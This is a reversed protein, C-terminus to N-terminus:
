VPVTHGYSCGRDRGLPCRYAGIARSWVSGVRPLVKGMGTPGRRGLDFRSLQATEIKLAPTWTGRLSGDLHMAPLRRIADDFRLDPVQARRPGLPRTGSASSPGHCSLRPNLDDRDTDVVGVDALLARDEGPQFRAALGRHQPAAAPGAAGHPGTATSPSRAATGTSSGGRSTWGWAPARASAGQDHLVARVRAGAVEHPMGPGTDGIEVVVADSTPAPRSGCRARRRGDRRRRQRHPQDVGPEARRRDGRDAARRRRLRPGRTVGAGIQHGADGAHERPGRHRRDRQM